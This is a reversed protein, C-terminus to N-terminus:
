SIFLRLRGYFCPARRGNARGNDKVEYLRETLIGEM